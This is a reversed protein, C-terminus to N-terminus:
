IDFDVIIPGHDSLGQWRKNGGQIPVWETEDPITVKASKVIEASAFCFDDTGFRKSTDSWYTSKYKETEACCNELGACKM